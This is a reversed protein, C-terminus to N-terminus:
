GGEPSGESPQFLRRTCEQVLADAVEQWSCDVGLAHLSCVPMNAYGCPDIRAFPSLDLDVNLALGHYSGMRRIRLGLSAIKSGDVYVGPADPRAQALIGWRMLTAIATQELLSVLARVGLGRRRLDLLVYMVVQGPGHYTVQGGRDTRIVPIQGADRVHEERGNMGLTFVAPHEVLWIEDPTDTGRAENFAQMEHWVAEYDRLGLQRIIIAPGTADPDAARDAPGHSTLSGPLGNEPDM